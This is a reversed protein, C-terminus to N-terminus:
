SELLNMSNLLLWIGGRHTASGNCANYEFIPFLHDLHSDGTICQYQPVCKGLEVM